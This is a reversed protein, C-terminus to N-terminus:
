GAWIGQHIMKIVGMNEKERVYRGPFIGVRTLKLEEDVKYQWGLLQMSIAFFGVVM